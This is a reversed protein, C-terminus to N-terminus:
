ATLADLGARFICQQTESRGLVTRVQTATADTVGIVAAKAFETIERATSNDIVCDTFPTIAQKPVAPFRTALAETVASKASQRALQDAAQSAQDCASVALLSVLAFARIM